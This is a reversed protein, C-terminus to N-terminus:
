VMDAEKAAKFVRGIEELAPFTERIRRTMALVDEDAARRPHVAVEKLGEVSRGLQESIQSSQESLEVALRSVVVRDMKDKAQLNSRAMDDMSAQTRQRSEQAQHALQQLQTVLAERMTAYEALSSRAQQELAQRSEELVARKEGLRDRLRAAQETVAAASGRAVATAGTLHQRALDLDHHLQVLAAQRADYLRTLAQDVENQAALHLTHAEGQRTRAPQLANSASDLAAALESELQHVRNHLSLLASEAQHVSHEVQAAAGAMMAQLEGVAQIQDRGAQSLQRTRQMSLQILEVLRDDSTM